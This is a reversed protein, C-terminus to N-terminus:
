FTTTEEEAVLFLPKGGSSISVAHAVAQQAGASAACEQLTELSPFHLEAIRYFPPASGDATGVVKTAVFKTMGKMTNENVMPVHEETYAREFIDVDQPYPYLVVLKAGAM